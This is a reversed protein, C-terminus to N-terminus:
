LKKSDVIHKHQLIYLPKMNNYAQMRMFKFMFARGGMFINFLQNKIDKQPFDYLKREKYFRHDDRVVGGRMGFILDRFIKMGGVGGLFNM